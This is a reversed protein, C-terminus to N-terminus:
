FLVPGMVPKEDWDYFIWFGYKEFSERPLYLVHTAKIMM